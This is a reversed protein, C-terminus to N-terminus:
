NLSHRTSVTITSIEKGEFIKAAMSMIQESLQIVDADDVGNEIGEETVEACEFISRHESIQKNSILWDSFSDIIKKAESSSTGFMDELNKFLRKTIVSGEEAIDFIIDDILAIVDKVAVDAAKRKTTQEVIDVFKLHLQLRSFKKNKAM